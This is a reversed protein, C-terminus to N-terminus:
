LDLSTEGTALADDFTTGGVDNWRIGGVDNWRIGSADTFLTGGVDNWRIGGVDNWRIGSTETVYGGARPATFSVLVLAILTVLWGRPRCQRTSPHGPRM